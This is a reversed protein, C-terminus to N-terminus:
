CSILCIVLSHPLYFDLTGLAAASVPGLYPMRGVLVAPGDVSAVVLVVPMFALRGM